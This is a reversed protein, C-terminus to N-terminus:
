GAFGVALALARKAKWCSVEPPLSPTVTAEGEGGVALRKEWPNSLAQVRERGRRLGLSRETGPSSAAARSLGCPGLELGSSRVALLLRRSMEARPLGATAREPVSCGLM